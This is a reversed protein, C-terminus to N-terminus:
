AAEILGSATGDFAPNENAGHLAHFEQGLTPLPVGPFRGGRVFPELVVQPPKGVALGGAVLLAAAIGTGGPPGRLHRGDGGKQVILGGRLHCEVVIAIRDKRPLKAAIYDGRMLLLASARESIGREVGFPHGGGAANGLRLADVQPARLALTPGGQSGHDCIKSRMQGVPLFPVLPLDRFELGVADVKQCEGAHPHPLRVVHREIVLELVGVTRPETEDIQHGAAPFGGRVLCPMSSAPPGRPIASRYTSLLYTMLLWLRNPHMLTTMPAANSAPEGAAALAVFATRSTREGLPFIAMVM